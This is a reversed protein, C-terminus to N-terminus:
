EVPEIAGVLYNLVTQVALSRYRQPSSVIWADAQEMPYDPLLRILVGRELDAELMFDPLLAIGHGLRALQHAVLMNGAAITWRMACEWGGDFRWTNLAASTVIANHAALDSPAVPTGARELYTHSAVLVRRVLCLRRAVLDSDDLAGMRVALDIGDSVINVRRETLRLEIQVDPYAGTLKALHPAVLYQGLAATTTLSVRGAVLREREAIAQAANDAATISPKAMDYIRRGEDTLSLARTSRRILSTRLLLELDALRRSVTSKPLGMTRAAATFSGEDAITVLLALDDLSPKM